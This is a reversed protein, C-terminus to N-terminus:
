RDGESPRRNPFGGPPPRASQSKDYFPEDRPKNYRGGSNDMKESKKSYRLKQKGYAPNEM